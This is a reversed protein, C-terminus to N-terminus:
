QRVDKTTPKAGLPSEENPDGPVREACPNRSFIKQTNMLLGLNGEATYANQMFAERGEREGRCISLWVDAPTRIILDPKSQPRDAPICTGNHINLYAWDFYGPQDWRSAVVIILGCYALMLLASLLLSEPTRGVGTWIQFFILAPFPGANLFLAKPKSLKRM